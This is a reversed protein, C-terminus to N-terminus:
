HGPVVSPSGGNVTANASSIAAKLTNTITQFAQRIQDGCLVIVAISVISLLAIILVYEVLTQGELQKRSTRKAVLSQRDIKKRIAREAQFAKTSAAAAAECMIENM